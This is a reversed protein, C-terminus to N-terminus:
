QIGGHPGEDNKVGKTHNSLKLPLLMRWRGLNHFLAFAMAERWNRANYSGM